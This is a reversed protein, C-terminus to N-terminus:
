SVRWTRVKPTRLLNERSSYNNTQTLKQATSSTLRKKQEEEGSKPNGALKVQVEEIQANISPSPIEEMSTEKSNQTGKGCTCCKCFQRSVEVLTGDDSITVEVPTKTILKIARARDPEGPLKGRERDQNREM